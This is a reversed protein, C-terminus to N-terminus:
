NAAPSSVQKKNEKEPTDSSISPSSVRPLTHNLLIISILSSAVSGALIGIKANNLYIKGIEGLPYYSLDAIFMSVTFGIGGLM